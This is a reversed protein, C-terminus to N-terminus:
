LDSMIIMHISLWIKPVSIECFASFSFKQVNNKKWRCVVSFAKKCLPMRFQFEYQTTPTQFNSDRWVQWINRSVFYWFPFFTGFLGHCVGFSWLIYWITTSFILQGQILGFRDM